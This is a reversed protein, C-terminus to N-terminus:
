DSIALFITSIKFTELFEICCGSEKPTPFSAEHVIDFLILILLVMKVNSLNLGIATGFIFGRADIAIIADADKYFSYSSIKKILDSFLEPDRMIPSIDKFVIGKKPFDPYDKISKKLRESLM